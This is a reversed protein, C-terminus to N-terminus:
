HLGARQPTVLPAEAITMCDYNELVDRRFEQLYEHIHPGHNYFRIGKFVPFLLRGAPGGKSIFTIVDERFGDIGLDLWFKLIKKVRRESLRIIWTSIRSSSPLCTCIIGRGCIM